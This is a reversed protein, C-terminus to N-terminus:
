ADESMECPSVSPRRPNLVSSDFSVFTCPPAWLVPSPPHTRPNTIGPCPASQPPLATERRLRRPSDWSLRIPLSGRSQSIIAQLTTLHGVHNGNKSSHPIGSPRVGTSMRRVDLPCKRVRVSLNSLSSTAKFEPHATSRIVHGSHFFTRLRVALPLHLQASVARCDPMHRRLRSGPTLTSVPIPAVTLSDPPFRMRCRRCKCVSQSCIGCRTPTCRDAIALTAHSIARRSPCVVDLCTV